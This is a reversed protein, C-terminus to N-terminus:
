EYVELTLFLRPLHLMPPRQPLFFFINRAVFSVVDGRALGVNRWVLMIM